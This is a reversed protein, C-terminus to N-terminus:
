AARVQRSTLRRASVGWGAEQKRVVEGVGSDVMIAAPLLQSKDNAMKKMSNQCAAFM